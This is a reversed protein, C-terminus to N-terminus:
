LALQQLEAADFDDRLALISRVEDAALQQKLQSSNSGSGSYWCDAADSAEDLSLLLAIQLVHTNMLTAISLVTFKLASTLLQRANNYV